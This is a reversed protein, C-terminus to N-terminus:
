GPILWQLNQKMVKVLWIPWIWLPLIQKRGISGKRILYNEPLAMVSYNWPMLWNLPENEKAECRATLRNMDVDVLMDQFDLYPPDMKIAVYLIM